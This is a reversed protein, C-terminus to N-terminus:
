GVISRESLPWDVSSFTGEGKVTYYCKYKDEDPDKPPPWQLSPKMNTTVWVGNCTACEYVRDLRFPFRGMGENPVPGRSLYRGKVRCIPCTGEKMCLIECQSQFAVCDEGAKGVFETVTTFNRVQFVEGKFAGHKEDIDLDETLQILM